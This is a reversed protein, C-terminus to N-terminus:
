NEGILTSSGDDDDDDDSGSEADIDANAAINNDEDVLEEVVVGENPHARYYHAIEGILTENILWPEVNRQNDPDHEDWNPNRANVCYGGGTRKNVRTWHLSNKDSYLMM